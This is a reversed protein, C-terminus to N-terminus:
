KTRKAPICSLMVIGALAGLFVRMTADPRWELLVAAAVVLLLQLTGIGIRRGRDNHKFKVWLAIRIVLVIILLIGTAYNWNM